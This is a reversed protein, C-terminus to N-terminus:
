PRWGVTDGLWARLGRLVGTVTNGDLELVVPVRDPMPEGEGGAGGAGGPGPSAQPGAGPGAAAGAGPPIVGAAAAAAKERLRRAAEEAEPPAALAETVRKTLGPFTGMDIGTPAAAAVTKEVEKRVALVKSLGPDAAKILNQGVSQAADNIQKGMGRVQTSMENLKAPKLEDAAAAAMEASIDGRALRALTGTDINMSKALAARQAGSMDEFAVQSNELGEQFLEMVRVSDGEISANLLETDDITVGTIANFSAVANTAKDFTDYQGAIESLKALPVNLAKSAVMMRRFEGAGREGFQALKPSAAVFANVSENVNVGLQKATAAIEKQYKLAEQSTLGLANRAAEVSKATTEAPVGLAKLQAATRAMAEQQPASLQNFRRFQNNLSIWVNAQDELSLGLTSFSPALKVINNRLNLGAQGGDKASSTFDRMVTTGMRVRAVLDDLGKAGGVLKGAGTGLLAGLGGGAAFGLGGTAAKAATKGTRAAGKGVLKLLGRGQPTALGVLGLAAGIEKWPVGSIQNAANQLAEAASEMASAEGEGAAGKFAAGQAAARNAGSVVPPPPAAVGVVRPPPPTAKALNQAVGVTKQLVTAEEKIRALRKNQKGLTEDMLTSQQQLQGVEPDNTHLNIKQQLQQNIQSYQNIRRQLAAVRAPDDPPVANFQAIAAQTKQVQAELKAYEERLAAIRAKEPDDGPAFAIAPLTVAALMVITLAALAYIIM